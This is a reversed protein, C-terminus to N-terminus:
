RANKAKSIEIAQLQKVAKERSPHEGLVRTGKKNMVVWKKGQKVIKENLETYDSFSQVKNEALQLEMSRVQVQPQSAPHAQQPAQVKNVLETVKTQISQLKKVQDTTLQTLNEEVTYLYEIFSDLQEM